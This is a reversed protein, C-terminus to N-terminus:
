ITDQLLLIHIHPSHEDPESYLGIVYGYLVPFKKVLQVVIMKELPFSPAVISSYVWPSNKYSSM